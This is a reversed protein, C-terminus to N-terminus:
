FMEGQDIDYEGLPYRSRQEHPTQYAEYPTALEEAEAAGAESESGSFRSVVGAANSSFGTNDSDRLQSRPPSAETDRLIDQLRSSGVMTDLANFSNRQSQVQSGVSVQYQLDTIEQRMNRLQTELRRRASREDALMEYMSKFTYQQTHNAGNSSAAGDQSATRAPLFSTMMPPSPTTITQGRPLPPMTPRVTDTSRVPRRPTQPAQPAEPEQPSTTPRRQADSFDYEYNSPAFDTLTDALMSPTRADTPSRGQGMVVTRRNRENTLRQLSRQFHQLGAELKAVRDELDKSTETGIGSISGLDAASLSPGRRFPPSSRLTTSRSARTHFPDTPSATPTRNEVPQQEANEERFAKSVFGSARLVPPHFSERWYKIEEGRKRTSSREALAGKLDDASRSRRKPNVIGSIALGIEPTPTNREITLSPIPPREPSSISASLAAVDKESVILSPLSKRRKSQSIPAAFPNGLDLPKLRASHPFEVAYPSRTREFSQPPIIHLPASLTRQPIHQQEEYPEFAEAQPSLTLPESRHYAHRPPSRQQAQPEVEKSRRGFIKRVANRLSGKRAKSGEGARYGRVGDSSETGSHLPQSANRVGATSRKKQLRASQSEVSSRGELARGSSINQTRSYAGNNSRDM